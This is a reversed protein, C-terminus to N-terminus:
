GGLFHLFQSLQSFGGSFFLCGVIVLIIPALIGIAKYVATGTFIMGVVLAMEFPGRMSQSPQELM